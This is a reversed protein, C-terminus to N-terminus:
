KRRVKSLPSLEKRLPPLNPTKIVPVNPLELGEAERSSQHSRETVTKTHHEPSIQLKASISISIRRRHIGLLDQLMSNIRLVYKDRPDAKEGVEL